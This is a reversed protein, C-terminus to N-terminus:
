ATEAPEKERTLRSDMKHLIRQCAQRIAKNRKKLLEKLTESAKPTQILGLAGIALIRNENHKDRKLWRRTNVLKKLFPIVEDEGIIALSELMRRKEEAPTDIFRDSQIIKVLAPIATKEKRQVLGRCALLRIGKEKDELASVLLAQAEKGGIKTLSIIAEKRVRLDSHKMVNKLFKVGEEKGIRGLLNAVNRAVYWLSDYMGEGIIGIHDKGMEELVECVMKRCPFCKLERLMHLIPSISNSNLAMLYEKTKSFDFIEKENLVACVNRIKEEDGAQDIAKKIREAKRQNGLNTKPSSDQTARELRRLRRIIKSASDFDAVNVLSDLIKEISKMLEDFESFNEETILIEGLINFFDDWFRHHDNIKLLQHISEIEKSSFEKLKELPERRQEETQELSLKDEGSLTIESHLLRDFDWDDPIDEAQPVDVDLLDDVVLYKIHNLDKEWLLTVLDEELETSKLGQEIAELFHILEEQEIGKIFILQRIGDKHLAYAIGEERDKDEYVMKGQYLLRSHQVELKLEENVDLFDSFNQHLKRKFEKPIPNNKPYLLLSKLTKVLFLVLSKASDFEKQDFEEIETQYEPESMHSSDM